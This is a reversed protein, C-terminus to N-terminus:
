ISVAHAVEYGQTESFDCTCICGRLAQLTQCFWIEIMKMLMWTSLANFSLTDIGPDSARPNM